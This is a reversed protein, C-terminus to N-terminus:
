FYNASDNSRYRGGEALVGARMSHVGRVYDFDSAAEFDVARNGGKRQAGGTTFADLVRLTAAEIASESRTESWRTQLRSEWFGRRGVAGNESARFVNESTTTQFAREVLDYSG